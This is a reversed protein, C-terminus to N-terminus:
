PGAQGPGPGAEGSRARETVEVDAEAPPVCPPPWGYGSPLAGPHPVVTLSLWDFTRDRLAELTGYLLTEDRLSLREGVMAPSGPDAGLRDILHRGLEAPGMEPGTLVVLHRRHRRAAALFRREADTRRDRDHFSVVATRHLAIGARAAAAQVSSIGPVVRVRLERRERADALTEQLGSSLSPDGNRLTVGNTDGDLRALFREAVERYDDPRQLYVEQDDLFPRVPELAERWGMVVDARRVLRAVARTVHERAGPGVGAVWLNPTM